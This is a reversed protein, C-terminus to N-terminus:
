TDSILINLEPYRQRFSIFPNTDPATDFFYGGSQLPGQSHYEQLEALMQM